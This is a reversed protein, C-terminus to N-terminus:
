SSVNRLDGPFCEVAFGRALRLIAGQILKGEERSGYKGKRQKFWCMGGFDKVRWIVMGKGLGVGMGMSGDKAQSKQRGGIEM